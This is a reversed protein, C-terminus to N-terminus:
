VRIIEWGRRQGLKAAPMNPNLMVPRGVLELLPADEVRGGVARSAQLDVGHKKAYAKVAENKAKSYLVKSALHGTVKGNVIELETAILGDLKLDAVLPAVIVDLSETAIIVPGDAQWQKVLNRVGTSLRPKVVAQYAQEVRDRLTQEDWGALLAVGKTFAQDHNLIGLKRRVLWGLVKVFTSAPLFHERFFWSNVDKITSGPYLTEDLDCFTVIKPM